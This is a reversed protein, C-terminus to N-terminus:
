SKEKRQLEILDKIRWVAISLKDNGGVTILYIGREEFAVHIISKSHYSVVALKQMSSIDWIIFM